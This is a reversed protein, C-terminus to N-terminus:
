NERFKIKYTDLFASDVGFVKFCHKMAIVSYPFLVAVRKFQHTVPDKELDFKFGPNKRAFEELFPQLLSMSSVHDIATLKFKQNAKKIVDKSVFCGSGYGTVALAEMTSKVSCRNKKSRKQMSENKKM